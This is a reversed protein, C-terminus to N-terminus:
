RANDIPEADITTPEISPATNAGTVVFIYSPAVVAARQVEEPPTYRESQTRDRMGALRSRADNRIKALAVSASTMDGNNAEDDLLTLGDDQLTTASLRRAEQYHALREPENLWVGLPAVGVGLREAITRLTAGEIIWELVPPAGFYELLARQNPAIITGLLPMKAANPANDTGPRPTAVMDNRAYTQSPQPPCNPPTEYGVIKPTKM